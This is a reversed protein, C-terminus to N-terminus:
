PNLPNIDTEQSAFSLHPISGRDHSIERAIIPTFPALESFHNLGPLEFLHVQTNKCRAYLDHLADLNSPSSTGEFVYTPKAIADLYLIPSRLATERSDNIDFPLNDSGYGAIRSVPGFAFIARFPNTTEAVLLALTGGTSHGGLYIRKPDVEPRSALYKGAAIVDDVEGYCVEIYGPNSNGGRLSPYLTIVGAERFARASQDNDTSAHGWPTDGIGNDFGGAIWVIAPHKIKSDPVTTIYAPFSGLPADYHVLALGAPPKLIPDTAKRKTLLHTTFGRRAERLNTDLGSQVLRCGALLISLSVTLAVPSLCRKVM